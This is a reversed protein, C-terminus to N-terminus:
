VSLIWLHFGYAATSCQYDGSTECDHQQPDLRMGAVGVNESKGGYRM